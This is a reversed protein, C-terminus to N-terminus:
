DMSAALRRAQEFPGHEDLWRQWEGESPPPPLQVPTPKRGAGGQRWLQGRRYAAQRRYATDLWDLHELMVPRPILLALM